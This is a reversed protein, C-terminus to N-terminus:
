FYYPNKLYHDKYFKLNSQYSCFYHILAYKLLYFGNSTMTIDKVNDLDNLRKIFDVIGERVLPEGGTIKFKSIGWESAAFAVQYIEDLSLTEEVKKAEPMCYTCRFNCKNTVSIRMYDIKRNYSDRM